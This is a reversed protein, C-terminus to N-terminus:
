GLLPRQLSGGGKPEEVFFPQAGCAGLGKM